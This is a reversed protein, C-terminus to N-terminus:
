GEVCIGNKVKESNDEIIKLFFRAFNMSGSDWFVYTFNNSLYM